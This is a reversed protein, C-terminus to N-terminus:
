KRQPLIRMCNIKANWLTHIPKITLKNSEVDHVNNGEHEHLAMAIAAYVENETLKQM